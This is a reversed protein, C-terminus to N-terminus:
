EDSILASMKFNEPNATHRDKKHDSDNSYLGLFWRGDTKNIDPKSNIDVPDVGHRLTSYGISMDGIDIQNEVNIKEGKNGILYVGGGIYDKGKKSLYTSIFFRQNLYPDSHPEIQGAGPPYRVIQIRDVVGDKPTNNEYENWSFGGLFKLPRWREWIDEFINLPDDNWPFFYASHKVAKISYKKAIEDDIWRHFDPCNERMKHFSQPNSTWYKHTKIKLDEVYEKSFANKIIYFDGNYLSYVIEQIFNDDQNSIKQRLDLFDVCLINRFYKPRAQINELQNWIDLYKNQKVLEKNIPLM